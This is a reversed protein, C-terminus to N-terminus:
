FLHAGACTKKQRWNINYKSKLSDVKTRPLNLKPYRYFSKGDLNNVDLDITIQDLNIMYTEFNYEWKGNVFEVLYEKIHKM